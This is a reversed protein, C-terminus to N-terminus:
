FERKEVFEVLMKLSRKVDNEPFTCISELAHTSYEKIKQCTYDIGGYESVFDYVKEFAKSSRGKILKIIDKSKNGPARELSIILPLTFKKEKVDNGPSNGM